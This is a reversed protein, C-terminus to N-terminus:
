SKPGEHGRPPAGGDLSAVAGRLSSPLSAASLVRVLTEAYQIPTRGSHQIAIQDCALERELRIRYSAWHIVPHFFYAVRAIEAIWGWTLDHRKLHALEHALIQRLEAATLEGVLSKPLVISPRLLGCVFPSCDLNTIRVRPPNKLGLQEAVQAVVSCLAEDADTTARLLANLRHRQLWLRFGLMAVIVTWGAFLWGQWTLDRFTVPQVSTASAVSALSAAPKPEQKTPMDLPPAPSPEAVIAALEVQAPSPEIAPLWSLGVSWTGLPVLLLKIAVLQWLWFRVAPSSRRLAWAAMAVLIAVITSQWLAVGVLSAWVTGCRNLADVLWTM